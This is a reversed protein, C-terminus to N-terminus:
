PSPPGREPGRVRPTPRPGPRPPEPEPESSPAPSAEPEPLVAAPPGLVAGAEVRAPDCACADTPAWCARGSDVLVVADDARIRGPCIWGDGLALVAVPRDADERAGVAQSPLGPHLSPLPMPCAALSPRVYALSWASADRFADRQTGARAALGDIRAAWPADVLPTVAPAQLIRRTRTAQAGAAQTADRWATGFREVRWGLQLRVADECPRAPAPYLAWAAQMRFVADGIAEAMVVGHRLRGEAEDLEPVGPAIHGPALAWAAGALVLGALGPALRRSLRRVM